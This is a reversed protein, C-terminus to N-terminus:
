IYNQTGITTISIAEIYKEAVGFEDSLTVNKVCSRIPTVVCVPMNDNFKM